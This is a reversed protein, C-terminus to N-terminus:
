AQAHAPHFSGSQHDPQRAQLEASDRRAPEEGGGHCREADAGGPESQEPDGAITFSSTYGHAALQAAYSPASVERLVIDGAVNLSGGFSMLPNDGNLKSAQQSPYLVTM